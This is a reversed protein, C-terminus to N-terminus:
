PRTGLVAGKKAVMWRRIEADDVRKRRRVRWRAPLIAPLLRLFGAFARLRRRVMEARPRRGRLAPSLIDRRAYSATVALFRAPAFMALGPPASKALALLRNREVYYSLLPSALGTSAAHVHRAVSEPAYLYRWGALRGRWSLDFDEYYLFFRGDLLGVDDLYRRSLLVSAGSWAFVEEKTDYQGHDFELYGRDAGSGDDLVIVGSSNVVEVGAGALPLECWRPEPGV